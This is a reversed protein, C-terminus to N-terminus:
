AAPTRARALEAILDFTRRQEDASGFPAGLFDTAGADGLAAIQATVSAADGVVAVDGPGAAGERDLMARYSPLQGYISYTANAQERAAAVDDTVSVPLSVVVRPAPRGAAEAARSIVPTTHDAITRLGTMWTATGDAREGAIRLMREGLAAVIVRPPPADITLPPAGARVSEGQFAVSEGRLLPMLIQLYEHMHRAPQDFSYGFVGEIVLKHSLGIGLTLRDGIAAQVTLAQAALMLPHRPYTPVVATMLELDPVQQGVVAFVTLADYGFIQSMAASDIGADVMRRADATIEAVSKSADLILGYRV